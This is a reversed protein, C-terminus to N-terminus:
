FNSSGTVNWPIKSIGFSVACKTVNVSSIRLPLIWKKQATVTAVEVIMWLIDKGFLKKLCKPKGKGVILTAAMFDRTLSCKYNSISKLLFPVRHNTFKESKPLSKQWQNNISWFFLWLSYKRWQKRTSHEETEHKYQLSQKSTTVNM